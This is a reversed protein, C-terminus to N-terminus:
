WYVSGFTAQLCDGSGGSILWFVAGKNGSVSSSLWRFVAGTSRWFQVLIAGLGSRFQELVVGLLRRFFAGPVTWRFGVM